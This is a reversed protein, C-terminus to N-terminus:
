KLKRGNNAGYLGRLLPYFELFKVTAVCLVFGTMTCMWDRNERKDQGQNMSRSLWRNTSCFVKLVSELHAHSRGRPFMVLLILLIATTSKNLQIMLQSTQVLDDLDDVTRDQGTRARSSCRETNWLPHLLLLPPAPPIIHGCLHQKCRTNCLLVWLDRDGFHYVSGSTYIVRWIYM